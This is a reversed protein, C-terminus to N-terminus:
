QKLIEIKPTVGMYTLSEKVVNKFVPAAVVGGYYVPRPNNLVVLVCLKPNDSPVFGIFSAVYKSNSYGGHIPDITQATGTKGAVQFGEVAARSATGDDSVVGELAITIQKSAREGLVSHLSKPEAEYLINSKADIIKKIIYPKLVRGGNALACYARILQLPTVAIEQGMPICMMSTKSWEKPNKFIGSIEGPLEIGTKSGFGFNKIYRYLKEEGMKMVAKATGINSSKQIVEQFTMTGHPKHDHLVMGRARWAGNECFITDSLSVAGADLASAGTIGKFTSGPEYCDTLACNRWFSSPYDSPSNPNFSPSNAMALVEGTQPNMVIVTGTDAHYESRARELEKEAIYQLVEDITLVIHHGDKPVIEKTVCSSIKKGRADRTLIIEGPTGKLIEDHALEIGEIGKNDIDVFGLVHCLLEKKPYIRRYEEKFYIGPLSLKKIKEASEASLKRKIWVFSKSRSFRDILDSVRLSPDAEALLEAAKQKNSVECPVAFLSQVTINMSLPGMNRDYIIGRKSEQVMKIEHQMGAKKMMEAHSMYQIFFLRAAVVGYLSLLACFVFMSRTRLKKDM